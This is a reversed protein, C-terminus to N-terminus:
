LVAGALDRIVLNQLFMLLLILVLPSLDIGGLKPLLRRIPALVPETLKHLVDGVVFVFRNHTNVVNFAVLWSLIVSGLVVWIYINIVSNLLLILAEM